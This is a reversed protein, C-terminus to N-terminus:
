GDRDVIYNYIMKLGDPKRVHGDRVLNTVLQTVEDERVENGCLESFKNAVFDMNSKEPKICFKAALDRIVRETYLM